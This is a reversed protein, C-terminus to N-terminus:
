KFQLAYRCLKRMCRIIRHPPLSVHPLLTFLSDTVLLTEYVRREGVQTDGPISQQPSISDLLAWTYEITEGHFSGTPPPPHLLITSDNAPFGRHSPSHM